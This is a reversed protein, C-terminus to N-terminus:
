WTMSPPLSRSGLTRRTTVRFGTSTARPGGLTTESGKRLTVLRWISVSVRKGEKIHSPILVQKSGNKYLIEAEISGNSLNFLTPAFSM